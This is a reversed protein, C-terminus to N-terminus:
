RRDSTNEKYVPINELTIKEKASVPVTIFSFLMCVSMLVSIVKQM